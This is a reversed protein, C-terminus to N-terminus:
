HRGRHTGIVEGRALEILGILRESKRIMQETAPETRFEAMIARICKNATDLTLLARAMEEQTRLGSVNLDSLIDGIGDLRRIAIEAPRRSRAVHSTAPSPTVSM